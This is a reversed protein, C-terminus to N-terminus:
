AKTGPLSEITSESAQLNLNRNHNRVLVLAPDGNTIM